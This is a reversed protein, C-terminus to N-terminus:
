GLQREYAELARLLPADIPEFDGKIMYLLGFIQQPTTPRLPVLRAL